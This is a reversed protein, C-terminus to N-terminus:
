RRAIMAAHAITATASAANAGLTSVASEPAPQCAFPESDTCARVSTWRLKAPSELEASVTTTWEEVTVVEAGSNWCVSSRTSRMRAPSLRTAETRRGLGPALTERSPCVATTVAPASPSGVAITAAASASLDFSSAAWVGNTATESVPEGPMHLSKLVALLVAIIFDSSSEQGTVSAIM